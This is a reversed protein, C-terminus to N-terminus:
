LKPARERRGDWVHLIRVVQKDLDIEFYVHCRSKPLLLRKLAPRKPTPFPTGPGPTTELRDIADAFELAFLDRHDAHERWRADIREVARAARKSILAKV